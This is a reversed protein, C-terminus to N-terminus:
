LLEYVLYKIGADSGHQGWGLLTVLNPHRFRSLVRLEDEFGSFKGPSAALEKVAVETGARLYGRYVSGVAGSGLKNAYSFSNTAAELDAYSYELSIRSFDEEQPSLLISVAEKIQKLM